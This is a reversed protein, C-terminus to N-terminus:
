DSGRSLDTISRLSLRPFYRLQTYLYGLLLLVIALDIIEGQMVDRVGEVALAVAALVLGWMELNWLGYAAAVVALGLPIFWPTRAVGIILLAIGTIVAWIAVIKIGLPASIERSSM